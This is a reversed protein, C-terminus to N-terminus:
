PSRRMPFANGADALRTYAGGIPQFFMTLPNMPRRLFRVAFFGGVLVVLVILIIVITGGSSSWFSESGSVLPTIGQNPFWVLATENFTVNLNRTTFALTEQSFLGTAAALQVLADRLSGIQTNRTQKDQSFAASTQAALSQAQTAQAVALLYNANTQNVLSVYGSLNTQLITLNQYVLEPFMTLAALDITANTTQLVYSGDALLNGLNTFAAPLLQVPNVVGTDVQARTYATGYYANLLDLFAYQISSVKTNTITLNTLDPITSLYSSVNFTPDFATRTFCQTAGATVTLTYQGGCLFVPVSSQAQAALVVSKSTSCAGNGTVTVQSKIPFSKYNAVDLSCTSTTGCSLQVSSPCAVTNAVLGVESFPVDFTVVMQAVKPSAELVMRLGNAYAGPDSTANVPTLKFNYNAAMACLGFRAGFQAGPVADGGCGLTDNANDWSAYDKATLFLYQPDFLPNVGMFGPINLTDRGYTHVYTLTGRRGAEVADPQLLEQPPSYTINDRREYVLYSQDRPLTGSSTDSFVCTKAQVDKGNVRVTATCPEDVPASRVTYVPLYYPSFAGFSTYTCTTTGEDKIFIPPKQEQKVPSGMTVGWLLPDDGYFTTMQQQYVLMDQQLRASLWQNPNTAPDYTDFSFAGIGGMGVSDFLAGTFQYFNRGLVTYTPLSLASASISWQSSNTTFPTACGFFACQFLAFGGSADPTLKTVNVQIGGVQMQYITTPVAGGLEVVSDIDLFTDCVQSCNKGNINDVCGPSGTCAYVITGAITSQNRQLQTQAVLSRRVWEKGPNLPNPLVYADPCAGNQLPVACCQVPNLYFSSAPCPYIGQSLKQFEISYRRLDAVSYLDALAYFNSTYTNIKRDRTSLKGQTCTAIGEGCVNTFLPDTLKTCYGNRNGLDIYGCRTDEVCDDRFAYICGDRFVFNDYPLSFVSLTTMQVGGCYDGTACPANCTRADVSPAEPYHDFCTCQNGVTMAAYRKQATLCQARCAAPSAVTTFTFDTTNDGFCGLHAFTANHIVSLGSGVTCGQGPFIVTPDVQWRTDTQGNALTRYPQYYNSPTGFTTICQSPGANCVLYTCDQRSTCSAQGSLQECTQTYPTITDPARVSFKPGTAASHYADFLDPISYASQAFNVLSFSRFGIPLYATLNNLPTGYDTLMPTYGMIICRALTQQFFFLPQSLDYLSTLLSKEVNIVRELLAHDDSRMNHLTSIRNYVDQMSSQILNVQKVLNLGALVNAQLIDHKVDMLALLTQNKLNKVDNSVGADNAQLTALNAAFSNQLAAATRQLAAQADAFSQSTAAQFSNLTGQTQAIADANASSSRNLLDLNLAMQSDTGAMQKILDAQSAYLQTLNLVQDQTLSISTSLSSVTNGLAQVTDNISNVVALTANAQQQSTTALTNLGDQLAQQRQLIGGLCTSLSSNIQGAYYNVARNLGGVTVGNTYSSGGPGLGSAWNGFSGLSALNASVQNFDSALAGANLASSMLSASHTCDEALTLGGKQQTFAALDSFIQSTSPSPFQRNLEDCSVGGCTGTGDIRKRLHVPNGGLAPNSQANVPKGNPSTSYSASTVDQSCTKSTFVVTNNPIQTRQYLLFRQTVKSCAVQATYLNGDVALSQTDGVGCAVTLTDTRTATGNQAYEYVPDLNIISVTASTLLQQVLLLYVFFLHQLM